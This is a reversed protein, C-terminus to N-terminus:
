PVIEGIAQAPLYGARISLVLLDLADPFDTSIQRREAARRRITSWRRRLAPAIAVAIGLLPSVFLTPGVVSMLIWKRSRGPTPSVRPHPRPRVRWAILIVVIVSGAAGVLCTM